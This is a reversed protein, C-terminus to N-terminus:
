LKKVEDDHVKMQMKHTFPAICIIIINVLIFVMILCTIIDHLFLLEGPEPKAVFSGM